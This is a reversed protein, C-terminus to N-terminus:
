ANRPAVLSRAKRLAGQWLRQLPSHERYYNTLDPMQPLTVREHVPAPNARQDEAILQAMRPFFQYEELVRRRAELIADRNREARDSRIIEAVKRPADPDEIELWVFSDAPFYDGINRAGFYLPMTGALFCDMIKETWYHPASHNEVAIGYRYPALGDWKDPLPQFGRGFLDFPVKAQQLRALFALRRRHGANAALNSTIWALDRSKAPPPQGHLEDYNRGVHWPLSGHTHTIKKGRLREDQTFVRGYYPFGKEIWRFSPDPPEQVVCWINSRPVEITIEKPVHNLAVLYDCRSVPELTFQCDGWVGKGGPTQRLLDPSTWSKVIRVVTM